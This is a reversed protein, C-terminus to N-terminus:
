GVSTLVVSETGTDLYMWGGLDCGSVLSAYEGSTVLPQHLASNVRALPLDRPCLTPSAPLFRNCCLDGAPLNYLCNPPRPECIGACHALRNM